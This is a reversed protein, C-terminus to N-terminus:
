IAKSTNHRISYKTKNSDVTNVMIAGVDSAIESYYLGKSSPRFIRKSGNEKHVIFGQEETSGSDFTVHYKKQVLNLSLIYVKGTPHYWVTGYGKLDGKKTVLVTGANCHLVLHRKAERINGLIKPNCFVDVTSQSDLLIWSPPIGAKEQVNCLVETQTFAIGNYDEAYLQEFQGEEEEEDESNTATTSSDKEENGQADDEIEQDEYYQEDEDDMIEEKDKEHETLSEEDMILM